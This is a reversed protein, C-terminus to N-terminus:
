RWGNQAQSDAALALEFLHREPKGAIEATRGSAVEVAALVAGSGPWAGGPMPM